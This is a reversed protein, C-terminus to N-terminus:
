YRGYAAYPYGPGYYAQGAAPNAAIVSGGYANAAPYANSATAYAQGGYSPAPNSAYGYAGAYAPLGYQASAAYGYGYGASQAGYGGEITTGTGSSYAAYQPAAAYQQAQTYQPAAAYEYGYSQQPAASYSVQQAPAQVSIPASAYQIQQPQVKPAVRVVQSHIVPRRPKQVVTRTKIQPPPTSPREIVLNVVDRQPKVVFVREIVDPIPTPVRRVVQRVQGPQGPVQIVQRRVVPQRRHMAAAEYAAEIQPALTVGYQEIGGSAAAFSPQAPLGSLVPGSASAAVPRSQTVYAGNFGNAYEEDVTSSSSYGSQKQAGYSALGSNYYSTGYAPGYPAALPANYGYGGYGGYSLQPGGAGVYGPGIGASSYAPGALNAFQQSM